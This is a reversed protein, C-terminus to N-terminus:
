ELQWCSSASFPHRCIRGGNSANVTSTVKPKVSEAPSDGDGLFHELLLRVESPGITAPPYQHRALSHYTILGEAHQPHNAIPTLIIRVKQLITRAEKMQAVGYKPYALALQM